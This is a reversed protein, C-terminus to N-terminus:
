ASFEEALQIILDFNKGLRTIFELSYLANYCHDSVFQKLDALSQLSQESLSEPAAASVASNTLELAAFFYYILQNLQRIDPLLESTILESHTERYARLEALTTQM